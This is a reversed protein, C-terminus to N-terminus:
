GQVVLSDWSSKMKCFQFKKVMLHTGTEGEGERAVMRETETFTFIRLIKYLHFQM